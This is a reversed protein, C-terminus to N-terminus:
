MRAFMGISRAIDNRYRLIVRRISKSGDYPHRSAFGICSNLSLRIHENKKNYEYEDHDYYLASLEKYDYRLSLLADDATIYSNLLCDLTDVTGKSIDLTDARCNAKQIAPPLFICVAAIVCVVVVAVTIAIPAYFRKLDKKFRYGCNPCNKAGSSM